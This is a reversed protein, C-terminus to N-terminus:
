IEAEGFVTLTIGLKELCLIKGVLIAYDAEAEEPTDYPISLREEWGDKGLALIRLEDDDTFQIIISKLKNTFEKKL